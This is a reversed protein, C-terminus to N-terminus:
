KRVAAILGITMTLYIFGQIKRDKGYRGLLFSLLNKKPNKDLLSLVNNNLLSIGSFAFPVFKEINKCLIMDSTKINKWGTMTKNKDFLLYRSTQRQRTALSVEAKESIHYNLMKNVNINSIVDVNYLLIHEDQILDKIKSLGGATDLLEKEYSIHIDLGFFNNKKLYSEIKGAFHHTNIFFKDIGQKALFKLNYSLLTEDGFPALAKPLNQTLPYLRTGLGASFIM